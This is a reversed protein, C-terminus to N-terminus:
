GHMRNRDDNGKHPKLCREHHNSNDKVTGCRICVCSEHTLTHNDDWLTRYVIKWNHKTGNEFPIQGVFKDLYNEIERGDLPEIVPQMASVLSDEFKDMKQLTQLCADLNEVVDQYFVFRSDCKESQQFYWERLSQLCHVPNQEVIQSIKPPAKRVVSTKEIKKQENSYVSGFGDCTTCSYVEPQENNCSPCINIM